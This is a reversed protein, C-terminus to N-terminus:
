DQKCDGFSEFVSETFEWLEQRTVQHPLITTSFTTSFAVTRDLFCIYSIPSVSGDHLAQFRTALRSVAWGGSMCVQFPNKQSKTGM